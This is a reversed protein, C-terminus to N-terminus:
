KLSMLSLRSAMIMFMMTSFRLAAPSGISPGFNSSAIAGTMAASLAGNNAPNCSAVAPNSM